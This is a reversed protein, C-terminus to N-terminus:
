LEEREGYYYTHLHRSADHSFTPCAVTLYSAAIMMDVLM